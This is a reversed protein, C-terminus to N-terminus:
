ITTDPNVEPAHWKWAYWVIILTCTMEITSYFIYYPTPTGVFLSGFQVATMITGAIINAFRDVRYELIRSLVIMALPIEMLIAAGLLFEQTIQLSGAAHGTMLGQFIGPDMIGIVDCYIYNVTVFIWLTSLIIRRDKVEAAKKTLINNIM